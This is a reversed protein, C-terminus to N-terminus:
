ADVYWVTARTRPARDRERPSVSVLSNPRQGNHSATRSPLAAEVTSRITNARAQLARRQDESLPLDKRHVRWRGGKKFGRLRGSQLRARVTRESCGLATAAERPTLLM